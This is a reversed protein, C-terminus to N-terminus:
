LKFKEGDKLMELYKNIEESDWCLKNSWGDVSSINLLEFVQKMLAVKKKVSYDSMILSNHAWTYDFKSPASMKNVEKFKSMISLFSIFQKFMSESFDKTGTIGNRFNYVYFSEDHEIVNLEDKRFHSLSFLVDSSKTQNYAVLDFNILDMTPIVSNENVVIPFNFNGFILKDKNNNIEDIDHKGSELRKVKQFRIFPFDGDITEKLKGLYDNFEILEDYLIIDDPDCMKVWPSEVLGSDIFNKVLQYKGSNFQNEIFKINEKALMQGLENNIEPNDSLVFIDIGELNMVRNNLKFINQIEHKNFDYVTYILTINKKMIRNKIMESKSLQSYQKYDWKWRVRAEFMKLYESFTLTGMENEDDIKEINFSNSVWPKSHSLFHFINVDYENDEYARPWEDRGINFNYPFDKIDLLSNIIDQDSYRIFDSNSEYFDVAREVFKQERLNDLDFLLVGANYYNEKESSIHNYIKRIWHSDKSWRRGFHGKKGDAFKFVESLDGDVYVDNDMYLVHSKVEPLLLPLFLRLFTANSIHEIKSKMEPIEFKSADILNIEFENDSIFSLSNLVIEIRELYYEGSKDVILFYCLDESSNKATAFINSLAYDFQKNDAVMVINRRKM